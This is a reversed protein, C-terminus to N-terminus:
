THMQNQRKKKQELKWQQIRMKLETAPVVMDMTLHERSYPDRPDSLLHASISKRDVITNSTPLIVPDVMVGSMIPDLFEDPVEGLEEEELLGLEKAEEVQNVFAELAAVEDIHKMRQKLLISAAKSFYEKQYSRSDRAVAEVFQPCSLHLYIDIIESLLVKPQFYYKERNRVKLETCKPGVLQALNYNLMAALRDVVEAAMFPEVAEASLYQLMHVTENGLAVYSRAQNELGRLAGEREQRQQQPLAEWSAKDDMEVQIQHIETLKSLSEDLLYTVDNMLMNVFRTFSNRNQSEERLKARHGPHSWVTKMVHSINYRINFKDYFQSSAGTQEVEVYFNMLSPVLHKLALPHSNLMPELEGPAGKAIPYTFFFLIEVLKAKLHPNNIYRTNRLFTIIFTVLQEQSNSRFVNMHYCYKGLFVFFEVVDEIIWEPLLAFSEPVEKPLPLTVMSWPHMHQPDVIRILWSMVLNYFRMTESLFEEDMLMAEFAYKQMTMVELRAKFRNMMYEQMPSPGLRSLDQEMREMQRKLEAHEKKLENYYVFARITGYHLSALTLYFIETIFNHDKVQRNKYRADSQVQDATIKTDETLDLQRSTWLYDPDIKDIKSAKVDLFPGSFSILIASINQMFGESSVTQPDVQMQGRKVNLRLVHGFYALTSKRAEPSSRVINNLVGFMTRQINHVTGRIGNMCSEIDASYREEANTFFKEAVKPARDPYGSLGLFPGLLSIDEINNAAAHAPVFEPLSTLMAAITKNESLYTLARLSPKYDDLMTMKDLRNSIIVMAAGIISDLGEDEKFREVLETLYDAPLGEITDPEALLRDALLEVGNHVGNSEIQPFLDPIQISLGSYSVIFKKVVAFLRLRRQLVPPDLNKSRILTNRYIEHARKWCDLLYDFKPVRLDNAIDDPYQDRNLNNPDIELRAVIVRDLLTESLRFPKPQNEDELESSLGRLYVCRGQKSVTDPNLTVQLIRTLVDNEWDEHSRGPAVKAGGANTASSSPNATTPKNMSWEGNQQTSNADMKNTDPSGSYDM